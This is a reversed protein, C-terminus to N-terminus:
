GAIDFFAISMTILGSQLLLSQHNKIAAQVLQFRCYLRGSKWLGNTALVGKQLFGWRSFIGEVRREEPEELRLSQRPRWGIGSPRHQKWGVPWFGVDLELALAESWPVAQELHGSEKRVLCDKRFEIFEM